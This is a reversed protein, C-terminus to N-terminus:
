HLLTGVKSRYTGNVKVAEARAKAKLAPSRYPKHNDMSRNEEVFRARRYEDTRGFGTILEKTKGDPARAVTRYGICAGTKPDKIRHTHLM